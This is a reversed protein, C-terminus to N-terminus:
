QCIEEDVGNSCDAEGDCVWEAPVSSGDGCPFELDDSDSETVCDVEDSGDGCDHDGDCIWREPISGGNDCEFEGDAPFSPGSCLNEDSDDGCDGEGDCVWSHPISEGSDCEFMEDDGVDPELGECMYLDESDLVDDSSFGCVDEEVECAQLALDDCSSSAAARRICDIQAQMAGYVCELQESDLL